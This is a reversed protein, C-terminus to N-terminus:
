VNSDVTHGRDHENTSLVVGERTSHTNKGHPTRTLGGERTWHYGLVAGERTWHKKKIEKKQQRGCVRGRTLSFCFFLRGKANRALRTNAYNGRSLIWKSRWSPKQAASTLITCQNEHVNTLLTFESPSWHLDIDFIEGRLVTANLFFIFFIADKPSFLTTYFRAREAHVNLLM